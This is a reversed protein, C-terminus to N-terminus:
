RRHQPIARAADGGDGICPPVERTCRPGGEEQPDMDNKKQQEEAALRHTTWGAADERVSPRATQYGRLGQLHTPFCNSIFFFPDLRFSLTFSVLSVYGHEPHM